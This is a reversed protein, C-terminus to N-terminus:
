RELSSYRADNKKMKALIDCELNGGLIASLRMIYITADALEERLDHSSESLSPGDYGDTKLGLSVKKLLNAFEGVEGMLGVTDRTLQEEKASDSAFQVPFGRRVDAEIQRRVIESLEM